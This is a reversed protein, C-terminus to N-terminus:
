TLLTPLCHMILTCFSFHPPVNGKNWANGYINQDKDIPHHGCLKALAPEIHVLIAPHAPHPQAAGQELPVRVEVDAEGEHGGEQVPWVQVVGPSFCELNTKPTPMCLKQYSFDM